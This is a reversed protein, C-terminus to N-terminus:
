GFYFSFFCFFLFLFSFPPSSSARSLLYQCAPLNVAVVGGELLLAADLAQELDDGLLEREDAEDDGLGAVAGRVGGLVLLLQALPDGVAGDLGLQGDPLADVVGGLGKDAHEPALVKALGQDLDPLHRIKLSPVFYYYLM